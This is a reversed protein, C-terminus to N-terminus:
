GGTPKGDSLKGKTTSKLNMLHKGMQKIVHGVYDLKEVKCGDYANEDANFAKSDGDSVM